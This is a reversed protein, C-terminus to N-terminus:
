GNRREPEKVEDQEIATKIAATSINGVLRATERPLLVTEGSAKPRKSPKLLKELQQREEIIRRHVYEQEVDTLHTALLRGYRNINNQHARILANRAERHM